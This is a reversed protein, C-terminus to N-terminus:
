NKKKGFFFLFCMIIFVGIVAIAFKIFNSKTFTNTAPTNQNFLNSVNKETSSNDEIKSEGAVRNLAKNYDRDSTTEEDAVLSARKKNRDTDIKVSDLEKDFNGNEVKINSLSGDNDIGIDFSFDKNLENDFISADVNIRNNSSDSQNLKPANNDFEEKMKNFKEDLDKKSQLASAKSKAISSDFDSQKQHYENKIRHGYNELDDLSNEMQNIVKQQDRTLSMAGVLSSTSINFVVFLLLAKKITIM